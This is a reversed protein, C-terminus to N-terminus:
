KLLPILYKQLIYSIRIYFVFTIASWVGSGVQNYYDDLRNGFLKQNEIIVDIIYGLCFALISFKILHNLNNPTHFGYLIYSVVMTILLAFIVTIASSLACELISHEHFYSQLSTIRKYYMTLDNLVIDSIFAVIFIILIFVITKSIM